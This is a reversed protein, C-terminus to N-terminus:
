AVGLRESRARERVVPVTSCVADALLHIRWCLHVWREAAPGPRPALVLTDAPEPMRLRVALRSLDSLPDSFVALEWDLLRGALLHGVQLNRYCETTTM